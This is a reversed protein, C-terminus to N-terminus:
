SYKIAATRNRWCENHHHQAIQMKQTYSISYFSYSYVKFLSKKCPNIKTVTFQIKCTFKGIRLLETPSQEVILDRHFNFFWFDAGGKEVGTDM